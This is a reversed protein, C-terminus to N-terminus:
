GKVQHSLNIRHISILVESDNGIESEEDSAAFLDDESDSFNVVADDDAMSPFVIQLEDAALQYLKFLLRLCGETAPCVKETIM